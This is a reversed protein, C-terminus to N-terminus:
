SAISPGALSAAAPMRPSAIRATSNLGLVTSKCLSLWSVSGLARSSCAGGIAVGTRLLLAPGARPCGSPGCCCFEVSTGTGCFEAAVVIGCCNCFEVFTGTGAWCSCFERGVFIGCCDCFEVAPTMCSFEAAVVIGCCDACFESTGTGAWCGCFASAAVIGCCDCFEPTGM